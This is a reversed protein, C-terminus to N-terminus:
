KGTSGFGAEMRKSEGLVEVESVDDALVPIPIIQAIKDGAKIVYEGHMDDNGPPAIVTTGDKAVRRELKPLQGPVHKERIGDPSIYNMLVMVEGRYGADVVGATVAIGKAAMSSRDRILLGTPTKDKAIFTMAIGTRVKGVSNIRLTTDELAYLDYGLDEGPNAITPITARNDLLKVQLM